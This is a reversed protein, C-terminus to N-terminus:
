RRGNTGMSQTLRKKKFCVPVDGCLFGPKKGEARDEEPLWKYCLESLCLILVTRFRGSALIVQQSHKFDFWKAKKKWLKLLFLYRKIFRKTFDWYYSLRWYGVVASWMLEPQTQM